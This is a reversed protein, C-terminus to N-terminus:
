ILLFVRKRSNQFLRLILKLFAPFASRKEGRGGWIRLVSDELLILVPIERAKDSSPEFRTLLICSVLYWPAYITKHVSPSDVWVVHRNFGFASTSHITFRFLIRTLTIKKMFNETICIVVFCYGCHISFNLNLKRIERGAKLTFVAHPPTLAYRSCRSSATAPSSPWSASTWPTSWRCLPVRSTSSCSSLPPCQIEQFHCFLWFEIQGVFILHHRTHLIIEKQYVGEFLLAVRM